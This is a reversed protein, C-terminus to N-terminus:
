GEFVIQITHGVPLGLLSSAGGHHGPVNHHAVAIELLGRQNFLALREGPPHEDYRVSIRKIDMRSGRMVIHFSRDRRARDFTAHDINTVANDFGDVYIVQGFLAQSEERPVPRRGPIPLASEWRLERPHMGDLLQRAVPVFVEREPFNPAGGSPMEPVDWLEMPVGGLDHQLLGFFPRDSALVWQDLIRACRHPSDPTRAANVGVLHLTESPFTRLVDALMYAAQASDFRNVAHSIDVVQLTPHTSWLDGKLM